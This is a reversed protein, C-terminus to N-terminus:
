KNPVPPHLQANGGDLPGGVFLEGDVFIWFQDPDNGKKGQPEGCDVIKGTVSVPVGDLTGSGAFNLVNVTFGKKGGPQGPSKAGSSACIEDDRVCSEVDVDPVKLHQGTTHKVVNLHGSPPPGVNGGFSAVKAGEPGIFANNFGGFTAWCARRLRGDFAMEGLAGSGKFEVIMQVVNEAGIDSIVAKGGNGTDIVAISDPPGSSKLLFIQAPDEGEDREIDLLTVSNVTVGATDIGTFDFVVAGECDADDPDDVLGDAGPAGTENDFADVQDKALVLVNNLAEDNPFPCAACGGDGIGPGGFDQHPTGIDRDAPGCDSTPTVTCSSDFVIAADSSFFCNHSSVAVNGSVGCGSIGAGVGLQTVITGPALGEFDMECTAPPAAQAPSLGLLGFCVVAFVSSLNRHM